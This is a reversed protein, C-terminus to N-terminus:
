LFIINVVFVFYVCDFYKVNKNFLIILKMEVIENMIYKKVVMYIECCINNFCM